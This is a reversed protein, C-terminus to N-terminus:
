TIVILRDTNSVDSLLESGDNTVLLMDKNQM